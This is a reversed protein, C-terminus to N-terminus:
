CICLGKLMKSMFITNKQRTKQKENGIMNISLTITKMYESSKYHKIYKIPLILYNKYKVMLHARTKEHQCITKLFVAGMLAITTAFYYKSQTPKAIEHSINLNFLTIHLFYVLFLLNLMIKYM